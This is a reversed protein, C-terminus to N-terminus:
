LKRELKQNFLDEAKQREEDSLLEWKGQLQYYDYKLDEHDTKLDEFEDELDQFKDELEDEDDVNMVFVKELEYLFHNDELFKKIDQIQQYTLKTRDQLFSEM